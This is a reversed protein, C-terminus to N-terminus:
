FLSKTLLGLLIGISPLAVSQMGRYGGFCSISFSGHQYWFRPDKAKHSIRDPSISSRVAKRLPIAIKMGTLAFLLDTM